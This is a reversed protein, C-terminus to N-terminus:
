SQKVLKEVHHKEGVQIKIFYIGAPWESLNIQFQGNHLEGQKITSFSPTRGFTDFIHLNAEQWDLENFKIAVGGSTPNPYISWAPENKQIEELNTLFCDDYVPENALTLLYSLGTYPSYELILPHDETPWELSNYWITANWNCHGYNWNQGGDFTEYIIGYHGVALGHQESIFKIDTLPVDAELQLEWNDGSDDTHFILGQNTTFWGKNANAFHISTPHTYNDIIPFDNESIVTTEFNIGDFTKHFNFPGYIYGLGKHGIMYLTDGGIHDFKRVESIGPDSIEVWTQGGDITRILDPHARPAIYATTANTMVGDLANPSKGKNTEEWTQGGDKTWYTTVINSDIAPYWDHGFALGNNEDYFYVDDLGIYEELPNPPLSVGEWNQGSDTTRFISDAKVLWGHNVNLFYSEKFPFDSQFLPELWNGEGANVVLFGTHTASLCNTSSTLQVKFCGNAVYAHMPEEENSTTGDGFDWLFNSSNISFNEFIFQQGECSYTFSAYPPKCLLSDCDFSFDNNQFLMGSSDRACILEEYGGEYDERMFFGNQIDGIGEIWEHTKNWHLASKLIIKKRAEGNLLQMTSVETVILTDPVWFFSDYYHTLFSDGEELTFDYLLVESNCPDFTYTLFYQGEDARMWFKYTSEIMEFIHYLQGCDVTDYLYEFSNNSPDPVPSFLGPFEIDGITLGATPFPVNQSFSFFHILFFFCLLTFKIPNM